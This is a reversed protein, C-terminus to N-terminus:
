TTGDDFVYSEWTLANGVFPSYPHTSRQLFAQPDRPCKAPARLGKNVFRPEMPPLAGGEEQDAM